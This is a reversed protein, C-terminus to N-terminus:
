RYLLYIHYFDLFLYFAIIVGIVLYIYRFYQHLCIILLGIVTLLYKILIFGRTGFFLSIRLLPNAEVYGRSLHWITFISDFVSLGVIIGFLYWIRPQLRDAYYNEVGDGARRNIRRRGVLTYRSLFPTPRKRRDPGRWSKEPAAASPHQEMPSM